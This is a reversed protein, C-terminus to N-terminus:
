VSVSGVYSMMLTVFEPRPEPSPRLVLIAGIWILLWIVILAYSVNPRMRPAQFLIIAALLLNVAGALPLAGTTLDM